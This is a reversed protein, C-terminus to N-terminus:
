ITKVKIADVFYMKMKGKNKAEIEGRYSCDFDEKILQYTNDSINIKGPESNSEMRSAINVTDGWIDYAFKKTGVVGAVVPGSNIGIRIDFRTMNDPDFKKAEKVFDAIEFAAMVLKLAHDDSPFPLGGAAMYADGVTKIKELGYKDMIEDFKSYYYNVSEVLEEPSLNASYKTFGKFDTFLVSVSEYKKAQVKGNDKLEKATEEPLINLLLLDSRQKENEVLLKAKNIFNNRRYLGIAVILILIIGIGAALSILQQNKKQQDLLNVEIQKQSVEYITRLDAMEEVAEINLVSDRYTYFNKLYDISEEFDGKQQYLEFLKLNADSIQEKLGYKQALDLSRQAYNLATPYDDKRLYIDSMYTLYVSIPYYDKIEELIIIAENINQEALIDKGQEAYVMGVNGLNYATGITYNKDNFIRGSEEFYLLAADYNRNIFYNDGANLLAAGLSISDNGKRLLDIAKNYYNEANDQNQMSTYVDAIAMYAGGKLVHKGSPALEASKFFATLAKELAGLSKYSNGRQFYGHYLYETENSLKALNILEDAYKLSLKRDNIENFSLNRLLELKETRELEVGQYVKVLSDAVRQNQANSFTLILCFLGTM